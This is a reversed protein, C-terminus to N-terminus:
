VMLKQDQTPEIFDHEGIDALLFREKKKWYTIKISTTSNRRWAGYGNVVLQPSGGCKSGRIDHMLTKNQNTVAYMCALIASRLEKDKSVYHNDCFEDYFSDQIVIEYNRYADDFTDLKQDQYVAVRIGIDIDDKSHAQKWIRIPTETDSLYENISGCCYCNMDSSKNVFEDNEIKLYEIKANIGGSIGRTFFTIANEELQGKSCLCFTCWLLTFLQENFSNERKEIGDNPEISIQSYEWDDCLEENDIKVSKRILKRIVKDVMDYNINQYDYKDILNKITSAIPYYNNEYLCLETSSLMYIDDKHKNQWEGWKLLNEIYKEFDEESCTEDVAFLLPELLYKM